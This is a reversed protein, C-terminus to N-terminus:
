TRCAGSIRAPFALTQGFHELLIVIGASEAWHIVSFSDVWGTLTSALGAAASYKAGIWTPGASGVGTPVPGRTSVGIAVGESGRRVAGTGGAGTGLTVAVAVLDVGWAGEGAVGLGSALAAGSTLAGTASTLGAGSGFGGTTSAFVGGAVALDAGSLLGGRVSTFAEGAATGGTFDDGSILSGGGSAFAGGGTGGGTFDDGSILSGGGSAFAGGGTGGGTFDDGSIL